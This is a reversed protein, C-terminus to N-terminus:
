PLVVLDDRHIVEHAIEPPLDHTRMGAITSILGSDVAVMGRAFPRGSPGAIEVTDGSAFSGRAGVVGAPLLSRPQDTIAREAGADVDITGEVEAAFAIWLKRAPLTRAHADFTTGIAGDGAREETPGVVARVLVEPAAARAIVSRIGSWSAIRAATLKSAMGGSGRGSGGRDASISLLPDDATVHVVLAASPDRRPDATYVGDTDTLLVLLDAAVSNAVLAALRDNDGYRLEHNAIADNENVVPVCGLELLRVLTRRAHLYQTRDVFDYPDLLVQAGVLGHRGLAENYAEVLRSQGAASIAQLTTMDSPRTALGVALVGAAVAGSSVVIVEHGLARLASVEDCLKTIASRDIAGRDDTISATGIKAVVRM